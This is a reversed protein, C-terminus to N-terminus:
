KTIHSLELLVAPSSHNVFSLIHEACVRSTNRSTDVEFDYKMDNYLKDFQRRANAPKRDKRNAERRVLEELPCFIKVFFTTEPNLFLLEKPDYIITDVIVKSKRQELAPILEYLPLIKGSDKNKQYLGVDLKRTFSRQFDPEIKHAPLFSDPHPFLCPVLFDINYYVFLDKSLRLIGKSVTSKGSSSTGNLVIVM